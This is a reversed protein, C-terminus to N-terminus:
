LLNSIIGLLAMVLFLIGFLLYPIVSLKEVICGTDPDIYFSYDNGTKYTSKANSSYHSLFLGEYGQDDHYRIIPYYTDPSHLIKRTPNKETAYFLVNEIIGTIKCFTHMCNRVNWAGCFLAASAFLMAACISYSSAVEGYLYFLVAFGIMGIGALATFVGGLPSVIHPKFVELRGSKIILPLADGPQYGRTVDIEQMLVKKGRTCRVRAKWYYQILQQDVSQEIHEIQLIKGPLIHSAANSRYEVILSVGYSIVLIGAIAVLILALEKTQLM